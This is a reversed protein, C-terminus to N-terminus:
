KVPRLSPKGSPTLGSKLWGEVAALGNIQDEVKIDTNWNFFEFIFARRKEDPDDTWPYLTPDEVIEVPLDDSTTTDTM